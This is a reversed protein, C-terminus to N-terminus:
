IYDAEWELGFRTEGRRRLQYSPPFRVNNGKVYVEPLRFFKDGEQGMVYILVPADSIWCRWGMRM